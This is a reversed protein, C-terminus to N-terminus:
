WYPTRAWRRWPVGLAAFVALVSLVFGLSLAASLQWESASFLANATVFGVLIGAVTGTVGLVVLAGPIRLGTM